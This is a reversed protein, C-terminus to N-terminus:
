VMDKPSWPNSYGRIFRHVHRVSRIDTGHIRLSYYVGQHPMVSMVIM